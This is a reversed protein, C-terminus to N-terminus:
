LWLGLQRGQQFFWFLGAGAGTPSQDGVLGAHQRTTSTKAPNKWCPDQVVQSHSGTPRETSYNLTMTLITYQLLQTYRHGSAKFVNSSNVDTLITAIEEDLM